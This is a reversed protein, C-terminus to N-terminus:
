KKQVLSWIVYISVIFFLTYVYVPLPILAKPCPFGEECLKYNVGLLLFTLYGVISGSVVAVISKWLTIKFNM